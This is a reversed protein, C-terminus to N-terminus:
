GRVAEVWSGAGLARRCWEDLIWLALRVPGRLDPRFDGLLGDKLWERLPVSFGKKSRSLIEAPVLDAVAKRFIHKLNGRGLRIKTPLGAVFEVLKHDLL